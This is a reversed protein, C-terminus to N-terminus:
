LALEQTKSRKSTQRGRKEKRAHTRAHMANPHSRRLILFRHSPTKPLDPNREKTPPLAPQTQEIDPHLQLQLHSTSSQLHPPTIGRVSMESKSLLLLLLLLLVHRWIDSLQPKPCTQCAGLSSNATLLMSSGTSVRTVDARNQLM